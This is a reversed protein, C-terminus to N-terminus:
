REKEKDKGDKMRIFDRYMVENWINRLTKENKRYKVGAEEVSIGRDMMQQLYRCQADNMDNAFVDPYYDGLEKLYERYHHKSLLRAGERCNMHNLYETQIGEYLDSPEESLLEIEDMEWFYCALNDLGSKYLMEKATNKRLCHYIHDLLCMDKTYYRKLDQIRPFTFIFVEGHIGSFRSFVSYIAM